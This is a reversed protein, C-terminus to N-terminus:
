GSREPTAILHAGHQAISTAEEELKMARRSRDTELCINNLRAVAHFNSTL